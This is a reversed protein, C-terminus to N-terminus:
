ISLSTTTRSIRIFAEPIFLPVPHSDRVPCCFGARSYANFIVVTPSLWDNPFQSPLTYDHPHQEAIAYTLLGVVLAVSIAKM